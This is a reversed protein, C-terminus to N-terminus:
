APQLTNIKSWKLFVSNFTGQQCIHFVQWSIPTPRLYQIIFELSTLHSICTLCINQNFVSLISRAPNENEKNLFQM